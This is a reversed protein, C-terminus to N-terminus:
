TNDKRNGNDDFNRKLAREIPMISFLIVLVQIFEMICMLAVSANDNVFFYLVSVFLSIVTAAAGLKIWLRGCFDHAFAWTESNKMSRETRYGIIGNIDKPPHKYMLYGCVIMLLPIFLTFIIYFAIM